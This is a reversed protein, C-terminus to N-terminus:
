TLILVPAIARRKALQADTRPAYDPVFEHIIEIYRNGLNGHERHYSRLLELQAAWLRGDDTKKRKAWEEFQPTLTVSAVKDGDVVVNSVIMDALIRKKEPSAKKWWRCVNKAPELFADLPTRGYEDPCRREPRWAAAQWSKESAKLVTAIRAAKCEAEAKKLAVSFVSKESQRTRFPEYSIGEMACADKYSCGKKLWACLSAQMLTSFKSKRGM